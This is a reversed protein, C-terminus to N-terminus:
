HSWRSPWSSLNNPWLSFPCVCGCPAVEWSVPFQLKRWERRKKVFDIVFCNWMGQTVRHHTHHQVWDVPWAIRRNECFKICVKNCQLGGCPLFNKNSYYNCPPRAFNHPPLSLISEYKLTSFHHMFISTPFNLLKTLNNNQLICFARINEKSWIGTLYSCIVCRNPQTNTIKYHLTIYSVYPLPM